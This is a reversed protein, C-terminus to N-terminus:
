SHSIAKLSYPVLDFTPHTINVYSFPVIVKQIAENLCNHFTSKFHTEMIKLYGLIYYLRLKTFSVDGNIDIYCKFKQKDLCTIM